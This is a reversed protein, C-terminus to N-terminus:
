GKPNTAVVKVGPFLKQHGSTVVEEGLTLGDVIEVKGPIRLGTKVPRIMAQQNTVVFVTTAGVQALIAEEPIVAANEHVDLTLEVNAFLGPRLAGDTNDIKAKVKITRTMVDVQPDIFYVQGIFERKNLSAVHAIVKQGPKLQTLFREPVGFNVKIPNLDVLRVLSDGAKVYAGPSVLRESVMGDFPAVIQTEKLRAELLNFIAQATRAAAHADDYEQQSMSDSKLLKDAREARIKANELEAKAQQHQARWKTADFLILPQGKKVASGENFDIKEVVADIESKIDVSENADLTGVASFKDELRETTVLATEVPVVMEPPGGGPKGGCGVHAAVLGTALLICLIIRMLTYRAVAM